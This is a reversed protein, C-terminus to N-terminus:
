DKPLKGGYLRKAKDYCKRNLITDASEIEPCKDKVQILNIKDIKNAIKKTNDNIIEKANELYNFKDILEKTRQFYNYNGEEINNSKKYFNLIENCRYDKENIFNCESTGIIIKNEKKCLENIKKNINENSKNPEIGVFDYYKLIKLVNSNDINQYVESNKGISAFLLGDRSQNLENRYIIPKGYETHSYAKSILKDKKIICINRPEIKEKINIQYIEKNKLKEEAFKDVVVGIGFNRKAFDVILNSTALEYKPNCEANNEKFKEDIYKRTSTHEELCILPYKELEKLNVKQKSLDKYKKGCVFIDKIKCVEISTFKEELEFPESVLGFDIKDEKLLKITEPTPGNTISIKIKPYIKQFEELYQLLFFQLCMDSSGIRIEGSELNVQELVKAEGLKIKEMAESIYSYLVEGEKTLTVGKKTRLFLEANLSEELQKITQSVAPQSICLNEAAVTINQKKAVEYFIKYWDLSVNM